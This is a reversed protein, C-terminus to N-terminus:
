RAGAPEKTLTGQLEEEIQRAAELSEPTANPLKIQRLVGALTTVFEVKKKKVESEKLTGTQM